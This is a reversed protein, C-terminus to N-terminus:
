PRVPWFIEPEKRQCCKKQLIGMAQTWLAGDIGRARSPCNKVCAFCLICSNIDTKLGHGSDISIAEVPCIKLCSKCLTCKEKSVQPAVPYKPLPKNKYDSGGPPSIIYANHRATLSDLEKQITTGFSKAKELDAGDPRGHAMPLKESSYSHEGIFAAYAIPIFGAARATDYLERLSDEYERNGYVVLLVAYLSNVHIKSLYDTVTVPIRGYYVPVGIIVLDASFDNNANERVQKETFDIIEMKECKISGAITHIIKRTTGTPSFYILKLKKILM